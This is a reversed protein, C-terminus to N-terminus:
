NEIGIKFGTETLIFLLRMTGYLPDTFSWNLETKHKIKQENGENADSNWNDESPVMEQIDEFSMFSLYLSSMKNMYYDFYNKEFVPDTCEYSMDMIKGTDDDLYLLMYQGYETVTEMQIQWFVSSFNSETSSYYLFPTCQITFESVDSKILGIDYYPALMATLVEQMEERKLSARQESIEAAAGHSLLFIKQTDSLKQFMNLTKMEEYHIKDDVLLDEVKATIVPLLGGFVILLFTCIFLIGNKYKKM